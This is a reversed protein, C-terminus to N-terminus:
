VTVRGRGGGRLPPPFKPTNEFKQLPREKREFAGLKNWTARM